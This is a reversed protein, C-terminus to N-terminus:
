SELPFHMGGTRARVDQLFLRNTATQHFANGWLSVSGNRGCQLPMSRTSSWCGRGANRSFGRSRTRSRVRHHWAQQSSYVRWRSGPERSSAAGSWGARLDRLYEWSRQIIVAAVRDLSRLIRLEQDSTSRISASGIEKSPRDFVVSKPRIKTSFPM